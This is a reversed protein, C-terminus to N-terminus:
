HTLLKNTPPYLITRRRIIWVRKVRYRMAIIRQMTFFTPPPDDAFHQELLSLDGEIMRAKALVASPCGMQQVEWDERWWFRLWYWSNLM